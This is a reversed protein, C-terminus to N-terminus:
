TMTYVLSYIIHSILLGFSSLIILNRRSMYSKLIPMLINGLIMSIFMLSSILSLTMSSIKHYDKFANAIINFFNFCFGDIFFFIYTFIIIKITKLNYGGRDIIENINSYFIKESTEKNALELCYFNNTEEENQNHTLKEELNSKSHDNQKQNENSDAVKNLM